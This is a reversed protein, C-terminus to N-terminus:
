TELVDVKIKGNKVKKDVIVKADINYINKLNIINEKKHGIINNINNKNAHIEIKKPKSNCKNIKKVIEDYWM